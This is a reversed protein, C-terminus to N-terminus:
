KLTMIHAVVDKIAQEDALAVANPRMQGGEIDKPNSGRAGSKFKELSSMMYWDSMQSLPPAKLQENGEGKAGHCAACVAYLAKGNAANGGQMTAAPAAKPMRSVYAAITEIDADNHLSMAMPRMAMGSIDAAHTGRLGSKFKQLAGKVYWEPLGAIAPANFMSEGHGEPGHCSVCLEFIEEGNTTAQETHRDHNCASALLAVAFLLTSLGRMKNLSHM